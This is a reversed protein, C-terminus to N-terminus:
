GMSQVTKKIKSPRKKQGYFNLRLNKKGITIKEITKKM